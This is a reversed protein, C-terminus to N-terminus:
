FYNTLEMALDKNSKGIYNLFMTESSHGTVYILYTTPIKGYFNTAFSRRGIHSTVLEHKPYKGSVSRIQTKENSGAINIQKKGSIVEVIKAAQCVEKIYDNYRQDSIPRPFDGNRKELVEMVKSHVPVTMEKGTKKQTFEILQKGNEERIMDKTFRMFDSIRQGTYCSIILWDRANILYNHLEDDALNSISEIEKENLYIKETKERKFKLIDLEPHTEIGKSKAYKCITKILSFERQMTNQSYNHDLYYKEFEIKFNENVEKILIELGRHKELREMKHKIVNFKKVSANTIENKRNDVYIDIFSILSKPYDNIQTTPTYYNRVVEQLWKKNILNPNCSDFHQMVFKSLQSLNSKVESIQNQLNVDRTNSNHIKNWYLKTVKEKTKSAFVYDKGQHRYLLRLTLQSEERTSRFLFNIAAM